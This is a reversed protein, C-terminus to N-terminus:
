IFIFIYHNKVNEDSTDQEFTFTILNKAGSIPARANVTTEIANKLKAPTEIVRSSPAVFLFTRSEKRVNTM